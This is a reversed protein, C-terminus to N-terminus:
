DKFAFGLLLKTEENEIEQSTAFRPTGENIKVEENDEEDLQSNKM